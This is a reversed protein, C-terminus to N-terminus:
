PRPDIDVVPELMPIWELERAPVSDYGGARGTRLEAGIPADYADTGVPNIWLIRVM